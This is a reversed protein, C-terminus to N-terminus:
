NYLSATWSFSSNIATNASTNINFQTAQFTGTWFSLGSLNTNLPTALVVTPAGALGHSVTISNTTALITAVGSTQTKYNLNGRVERNVSTGVSNDFAGKISNGIFNNDTLVYNDCGTGLLVGYSQSVPFGAHAGSRCGRIAFGNLNNTIDIGAYTGSSTVSNGSIRCQNFEINRVNGGANEVLVGQFENNYFTCGNFHVTDVIGGTTTAIYAGRENTASWCNNFFLGKVTAGNKPYIEIGNGDSTDFAVQSFFCWTILGNALGDPNILLPTGFDIIDSDSIWVAQTRTINIGCKPETGSSDMVVHDIFTDNGGNIIIGTGTVSTADLIEGNEITTIVVEADLHIGVYGNSFVFNRVFNGRTATDFKIFSGATRQTDSYIRIGDVGSYNSKITLTDYGSGVVRINSKNAGSGYINQATTLVSLGSSVVYTGAPIFIPKGTNLAAQIAATDNTVNDGIAGFDKVNVTDAFRDRLTRSASSGTATVPLFNGLTQATIRKNTGTSSMSIDDKDVVQLLDNGTIDGALGLQSIKKAM